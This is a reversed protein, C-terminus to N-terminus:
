QTQETLACLDFYHTKGRDRWEVIGRRPDFRFALKGGATRVDVYQPRM